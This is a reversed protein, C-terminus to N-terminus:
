ILFDKKPKLIVYILWKFFLAMLVAFLIGLFLKWINFLSIFYYETGLNFLYRFGFALSWIYIYYFVSGLSVKLIINNNGSLNLYKRILLKSTLDFGILFMSTLGLYRGGMLDILIGFLFITVLWIRENNLNTELIVFCFVLFFNIPLHNPVLVMSLLLALISLLSFRIWYSM